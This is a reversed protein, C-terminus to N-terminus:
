KVESTISNRLQQTEVLTQQVKKREMNSPQWAGGGGTAFADAVVEESTIAVKQMWPRITGEAIVDAMAKKGFAGNKSLYKELFNTIPMRLFSRIPLTSTGFEHKAGIEANSPAGEESRHNSGLIGIRVKIDDTKLAKLLKKLNRNDLRVTDDSM